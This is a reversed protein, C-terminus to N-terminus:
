HLCAQDLCTLARLCHGPPKSAEHRRRHGQHPIDSEINSPRPGPVALSLVLLAVLRPPLSCPFPAAPPQIRSACCYSMRLHRCCHLPTSFSSLGRPSHIRSVRLKTSATQTITSHLLATPLGQARRTGPDSESGVQRPVGVVSNRRSSSSSLSTVPAL